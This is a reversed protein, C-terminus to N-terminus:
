EIRYKKRGEEEKYLLNWTISTITTKKQVELEYLNLQENILARIFDSFYEIVPHVTFIMTHELVVVLFISEYDRFSFHRLDAAYQWM